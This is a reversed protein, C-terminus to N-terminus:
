PARMCESLLNIRKERCIQYSQLAYDASKKAKLIYSRERERDHPLMKKRWLYITHKIWCDQAIRGQPYM